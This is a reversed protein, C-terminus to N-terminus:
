FKTMYKVSKYINDADEECSFIYTCLNVVEKLDKNLHKALNVSFHGLEYTTIIAQKNSKIKYRNKIPSKLEKKDPILSLNAFLEITNLMFLMEHGNLKLFELDISAYKVAIEVIEQHKKLLKEKQKDYENNANIFIKFSDSNYINAIEQKLDNKEKENLEKMKYMEKEHKKEVKKLHM